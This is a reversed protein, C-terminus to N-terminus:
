IKKLLAIKHSEYGFDLAMAVSENTYIDVTLDFGKLLSKKHVWKATYDGVIYRTKGIWILSNLKISRDSVAVYGPKPWMGNAMRYGTWTYKTVRALKKVTQRAQGKVNTRFSVQKSKVNSTKINAKKTIQQKKPTEKAPLDPLLFCFFALIFLIKAIKMIDGM